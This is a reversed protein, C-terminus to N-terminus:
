LEGLDDVMLVKTLLACIIQVELLLTSDSNFRKFSTNSTFLWGLGKTSLTISCTMSLLVVVSLDSVSSVAILHNSCNWIRLLCTLFFQVSKKFGWLMVTAWLGEVM